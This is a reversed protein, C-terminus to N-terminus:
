PVFRYQLPPVHAGQVLPAEHTGAPLGHWLPVALQAVPAMTHVSVIALASLPVAHPDLSTQMAPWHAGQTAPTARWGLPLTQWVPVVEHALPCDCHTAVPSALSPVGHSSPLAHVIPSEHRVPAHMLPEGM